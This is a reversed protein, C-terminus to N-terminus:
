EKFLKDINVELANAIKEATSLSINREGREIRGIYTRDLNVIFALEEQSFGKENRIKKLNKGFIKVLQNTMKTLIYM